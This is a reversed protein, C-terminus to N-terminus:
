MQAEAMKAVPFFFQFEKVWSFVNLDCHFTKVSIWQVVWFLLHTVGHIPLKVVVRAAKNDGFRAKDESKIENETRHCSCHTWCWVLYLLDLRIVAGETSRRRRHHSHFCEMLVWLSAGILCIYSWHWSTDLTHYNNLVCVTFHVIYTPQLLGNM